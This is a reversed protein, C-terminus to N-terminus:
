SRRLSKRYKCLIFKDDECIDRFIQYARIHYCNVERNFSTLIKFTTIGCAASIAALRAGVPGYGKTHFTKRVYPDESVRHFLDHEGLRMKYLENIDALSEARDLAKNCERKLMKVMSKSSYFGQKRIAPLVETFVWDRFSKAMPLRSGFILAYIDPEPIVRIGRPSTTLPTTQVGKLLKAYNCHIRVAQECDVYGLAAAVENAVFYPTGDLMISRIEGFQENEFIM